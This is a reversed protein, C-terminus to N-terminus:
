RGADADPDAACPPNPAGPTGLNEGYPVSGHCWDGIADLSLSAGARPSLGGGYEVRDIELGGCLLAVSDGENGLSMSMVHDPPFGPSASRAIALYAGPVLTPAGAIPRPRASGDDLECGELVLAREASPNHLEIWEGASDDIVLPNPMLETIRVAHRGDPSPAAAPSALGGESAAVPAGGEFTPVSGDRMPRPGPLVECEPGTYPPATRPRSPGGDLALPRASGADGLVASSTTAQPPIEVCGLMWLALPAGAVLAARPRLSLYSTKM